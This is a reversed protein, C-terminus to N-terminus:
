GQTSYFYLIVGVTLTSLLNIVSLLTLLSFTTRTFLSSNTDEPTKSYMNNFVIIIQTFLFIVSILSFTSYYGSIHGSSINDFFKYLYYIIFCTITLIMMFPFMDLFSIRTFFLCVLVVFLMGVFLGIYGGILASLGNKDTMNTTIIIIVCSAFVIALLINMIQKLELNAFM